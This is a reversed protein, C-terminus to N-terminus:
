ALVQIPIDHVSGRLDRGLDGPTRLLPLLCALRLGWPLKAAM